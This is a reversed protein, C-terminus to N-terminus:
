TRKGVEINKKIIEYLDFIQKEMKSVVLEKQEKNEIPDWTPINFLEDSIKQNNSM